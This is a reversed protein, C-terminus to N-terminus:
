GSLPAPLSLLSLPCPRLHSLYHNTYGLVLLTGIVAVVPKSNTPRAPVSRVLTSPLALSPLPLPCSSLLPTLRQADLPRRSSLRCRPRLRGLQGGDEQM